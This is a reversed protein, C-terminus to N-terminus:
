KEGLEALCVAEVQTAEVSAAMGVSGWCGWCGECNKVVKAVTTAVLLWDWAAWRGLGRDNCLKCFEAINKPKRKKTTPSARNVSASIRVSSPSGRWDVAEGAM